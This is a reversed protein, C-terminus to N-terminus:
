WITHKRRRLADRLSFAYHLAQPRMPLPVHPPVRDELDRLLERAAAPDTHPDRPSQAAV